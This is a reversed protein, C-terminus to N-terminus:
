TRIATPRRTTRGSSRRRAEVVQYFTRRSRRRRCRRPRPPPPPPQYLDITFLSPLPPPPKAQYFLTDIGLETPPGGGEGPCLHNCFIDTGISVASLGLSAVGLIVNAPPPSFCAALGVAVAVGDIVVKTTKIPHPDAYAQYIDYGLLAVSAVDGIVPIVPLAKKMLKFYKTMKSTTDRVITVAVEGAVQAGVKTAQRALSVDAAVEAVVNAAKVADVVTEATKKVKGANKLVKKMQEVFETAAEAAGAGEILADISARSIAAEAAAELKAVLVRATDAAEEAADLAEATNDLNDFQDWLGDIELFSDRIEFSDIFGTNRAAAAADATSAAAAAGATSTAAAAGAIGGRQFARLVKTWGKDVFEGTQIFTDVATKVNAPLHRLQDASRATYKLNELGERFKELEVGFQERIRDKSIPSEDVNSLRRSTESARIIKMQEVLDENWPRRISALVKKKETKFDKSAFSTSLHPSHQYPVTGVVRNRVDINITGGVGETQKYSYLKRVDVDDSEAIGSLDDDDKYSDKHGKFIADDVRTNSNVNHLIYPFYYSEFIDVKSFGRVRRLPKCQSKMFETFTPLILSNKYLAIRKALDMKTQPTWITGRPPAGKTTLSDADPLFSDILLQKTQTTENLHYGNRTTTLVGNILFSREWKDSYKQWIHPNVDSHYEHYHTEADYVAEMDIKTIASGHALVQTRVLLLNPSTNDVKIHPLTDMHDTIRGTILLHAYHGLTDYMTSSSEVFLRGASTQKMTHLHHNTDKIAAIGAMLDALSVSTDVFDNADIKLDLNMFAYAMKEGMWIRDDIQAGNTTVHDSSTDHDSFKTNVLEPTSLSGFSRTKRVIVDCSYESRKLSVVLPRSEMRTRFPNDKPVYLTVVEPSGYTAHRVLGLRSWFPTEYILARLITSASPPVRKGPYISVIKHIAFTREHVFESAPQSESLRRGKLRRMNAEHRLHFSANVINCPYITRYDEYIEDLSLPTREQLRREVYPTTHEQRVKIRNRIYTRMSSSEYIFIQDHFDPDEDFFHLNANDTHVASAWCEHYMVAVYKIIGPFEFSPPSRCTDINFVCHFVTPVNAFTADSFDHVMYCLEDVDFLSRIFMGIDGKANPNYTPDFMVNSSENFANVGSRWLEGDFYATEPMRTVTSDYEAANLDVGDEINQMKRLEEYSYIEYKFSFHFTHNCFNMENIHMEFVHPLFPGLIGHIHIYEFGEANMWGHDIKLIPPSNFLYSLCDVYGQLSFSTAPLLYTFDAEIVFFIIASGIDDLLPLFPTPVTTNFEFETDTINEDLKLEDLTEFYYKQQEPLEEESLRRDTENSANYVNLLANQVEESIGLSAYKYLINSYHNMKSNYLMSKYAQIEVHTTVMTGGTHHRVDQALRCEDEQLYACVLDTINLIAMRTANPRDLTLHMVTTKTPFTVEYTDMFLARNKFVQLQETMTASVDFMHTVLSLEESQYLEKLSDKMEKYRVRDDHIPAAFVFEYTHHIDPHLAKASSSYSIHYPPDQQSNIRFSRVENEMAFLRDDLRVQCHTDFM